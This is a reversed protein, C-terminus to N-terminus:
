LSKRDWFEAFCAFIEFDANTVLIDWNKERKEVLISVLGQLEILENGCHTGWQGWRSGLNNFFSVLFNPTSCMLDINIVDFSFVNRLPMWINKFALPRLLSNQNFKHFSKLSMM